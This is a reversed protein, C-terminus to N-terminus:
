QCIFHPFRTTFYHAENACMKGAQKFGYVTLTTTQPGWSRWPCFMIDCLTFRIPLAGVKSSKQLHCGDASFILACYNQFFIWKIWPSISKIISKSSFFVYINKLWTKRQFLSLKSTCDTARARWHSYFDCVTGTNLLGSCFPDSYAKSHVSNCM